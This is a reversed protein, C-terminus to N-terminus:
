HSPKKYRQELLKSKENNSKATKLKDEILIKIMADRTKDKIKRFRWPFTRRHCPAYNAAEIAELIYSDEVATEQFVHITRRRSIIEKIAKSNTTTM